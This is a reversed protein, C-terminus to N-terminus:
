TWTIGYYAALAAGLTAASPDNNYAVASAIKGDYYASAYNRGFAFHATLSSTNTSGTSAPTSNNLYSYINSSAHRWIHVYDTATAVTQTAKDENGDWNYAQIDPGSSRLHSGMFSGDGAGGTHERDAWLGDDNYASGSNTNIADVRWVVAMLGTTNTFLNGTTATSELWDDTGDFDMASKGGLTVMAGSSVIQPQSGTTAQGVDRSNGSQDYLTRVFGNGAGCFTLLGSTDLETGSLGFDQETNDSSRRVRVVNGTWASVLRTLGWAGTPSGTALGTGMTTLFAPVFAYLM